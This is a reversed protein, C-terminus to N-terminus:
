TSARRAKTRGRQFTSARPGSSASGVCTVARRPSHQGDGVAPPGADGVVTRDLRAGSRSAGAEEPQIKM